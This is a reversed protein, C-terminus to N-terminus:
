IRGWDTRGYREVLQALVLLYLGFALVNTLILMTRGVYLPSDALSLGLAQKVVWYEGALLVTLLTPKSSYYHERGDWGRHKVLDISYWASRRRGQEDFIVDDLEFTGHDVLARITSWRSRDNASQFPTSEQ